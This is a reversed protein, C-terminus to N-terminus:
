LPLKHVSRGLQDFVGALQLVLQGLRPGIDGLKFLLEEAGFGVLQRGLLLLLQLLQGPLRHFL